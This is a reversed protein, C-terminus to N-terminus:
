REDDVIEAVAMQCYRTCGTTYHKSQQARTLVWSPLSLCNSVYRSLSKWELKRSFPVLIADFSMDKVEDGVTISLTSGDRLYRKKAVEVRVEAL